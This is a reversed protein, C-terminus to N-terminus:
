GKRYDSPLKGTYDRFNQIFTSLSNYGIEFTVDIVQRGERLLLKAKEMRFYIQLDKPTTNIEEQCIRLLTRPSLGSNKIIENLPLEPNEELQSIFKILRADKAKSAEFHFPSVEQFMLESLINQFAVYVSDFSKQDHRLLLQFLIEKILQSSNFTTPQQAWNLKPNSKFQVILREGNEDSSEFSHNIEPPLFLMQSEKLEYKKNDATVSCKGRIPIFLHSDSHSHPKVQRKPFNQHYIKLKETELVIEHGKKM